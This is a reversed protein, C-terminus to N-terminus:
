EHVRYNGSVRYADDHDKLVRFAGSMWNWWGDESLGTQDDEYHEEVFEGKRARGEEVLWDHLTRFQNLRAEWDKGEGRLENIDGRREELDQKFENWEMECSHALESSHTNQMAEQVSAGRSRHTMTAEAPTERPENTRAPWWVTARAGVDKRKVEGTENLEHLRDLLGRKGITVRDAVDQATAVPEPHARLAALIEENTLTRKRGADPPM